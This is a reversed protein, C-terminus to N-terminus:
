RGLDLPKPLLDDGDAADQEDLRLQGRSRGCAVLLGQLLMSLEAQPYVGTRPRWADRGREAATGPDGARSRPARSRTRRPTRSAARVEVIVVRRRDRIQLLPQRFGPELQVADVRRDASLKVPPRQPPDSDSALASGAARARATLSASARQVDRPPMGTCTSTTCRPMGRVCRVLARAVVARRRPAADLFQQSSASGSPTCIATSTIGFSSDRAPDSTCKTSCPRSVASRCRGRSRGRAGPRRGPRRSRFPTPAGSRSGRARCGRAAAVIM